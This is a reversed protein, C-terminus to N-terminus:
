INKENLWQGIRISIVTKLVGQCIADTDNGQLLNQICGRHKVFGTKNIDM